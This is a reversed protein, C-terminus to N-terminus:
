FKVAVLPSSVVHDHRDIWKLYGYAVAPAEKDM